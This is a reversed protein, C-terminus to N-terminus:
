LIRCPMLHSTTLPRVVGHAPTDSPTLGDPDPYRATSEPFFPWDLPCLRRILACVSKARIWRDVPVHHRSQDHSLESM